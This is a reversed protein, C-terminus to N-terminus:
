PEYRLESRDPAVALVALHRHVAVEIRDSFLRRPAGRSLAHVVPGLLARDAVTDIAQRLEGRSRIRIPRRAGDIAVGWESENVQFLELEIGVADVALRSPPPAELLIEARVGRSRLAAAGLPDVRTDVLELRELAPLDRLPEALVRALDNDVPTGSLRLVRLARLDLSALVRVTAASLGRCHSLDLVELGTIHDWGSLALLALPPRDLGPQGTELWSGAFSLRRCRPLHGAFPPWEYASGSMVALDEVVDSLPSELLASLGEDALHEHVALRRIRGQWPAGALAQGRYDLLELSAIPERRALEPLLGLESGFVAVTEAFGHRTGIRQEPLEPWWRAGHAARLEARRRLLVARESSGRPTSALRMEVTIYEGREDDGALLQDAYVLRLADDDPDALIQDLM